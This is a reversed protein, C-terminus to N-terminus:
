GPTDKMPSSDEIVYLGDRRDLREEVGIVENECGPTTKLMSSSFDLPLGSHKSLLRPNMFRM